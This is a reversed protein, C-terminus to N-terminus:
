EIGFIPGVNAGDGGTGGGIYSEFMGVLVISSDFVTSGFNAINKLNPVIERIRVTDKKNSLDIKFENMGNTIKMM